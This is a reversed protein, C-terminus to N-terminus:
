EEEDTDIDAYIAAIKGHLVLADNIREVAHDYAAAYGRLLGKGFPTDSCVTDGADAETRNKKAQDQMFAAARELSEILCRTAPDRRDSM